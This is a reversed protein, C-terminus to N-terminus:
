PIVLSKGARTSRLTRQTLRIVISGVRNDKFDTRMSSTSIHVSEHGEVPEPRVTTLAESHRISLLKMLSLCTLQFDNLLSKFLVLLVM